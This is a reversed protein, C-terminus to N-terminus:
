ENELAPPHLGAATWRKRAIVVVETNMKLREVTARGISTLGVIHTKDKNWEFHESWIQRRPNFLEVAKGTEPDLSKIADLKANNCFRCALCLNDLDNSGGDSVPIIHDVEMYAVIDLQTQCYECCGRARETVKQRVAKSIRPM